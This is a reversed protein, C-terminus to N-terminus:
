EASDVDEGALELRRRLSALLETLLAQQQETMQVRPRFRLISRYAVSAEGRRRIKDEDRKSTDALDLFTHALRADSLILEVSAANGAQRLSQLSKM